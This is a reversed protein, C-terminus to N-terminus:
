KIKEIFSVVEEPKVVLTKNFKAFQSSAVGAFVISDGNKSNYKYFVPSGSIGPQIQNNLFYSNKITINEGLYNISVKDYSSGDPLLNILISSEVGESNRVYGNVFIDAPKNGKFSQYIYKEVSYILADEPFKGTMEYVYIDPYEYFYHSKSSHCIDKIYITLPKIDGSVTPYMISMSDFEPFDKEKNMTNQNTFVHYCSILFLRNNERIFFGTGVSAIHGNSFIGLPYSLDSFSDDPLSIINETNSQNSDSDNSNCSIISLLLLILPLIYKM